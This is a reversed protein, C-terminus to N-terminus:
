VKIFKYNINSFLKNFTQPLSLSCYFLVGKRTWGFMYLGPELHFKIGSPVRVPRARGAFYISFGIRSYIAAALVAAM